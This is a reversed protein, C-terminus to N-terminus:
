IAILANKMQMRKLTKKVATFSVGLHRAVESVSSKSIMDQLDVLSPWKIKTRRPSKNACRMCQKSNTNISKGCHCYNKKAKKWEKFNRGCYTTTQSHCNPCLISLNEIRNDDRVGNKHELQLTISKGNWSTIKCEECRNELLGISVLRAKLSTRNYSSGEVLIEELPIIKRGATGHAQLKWHDTNLSLRDVTEHILKYNGACPSLKLTRLVAAISINSKISNVIEDEPVKSKVSM